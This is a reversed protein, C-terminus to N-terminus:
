NQMETILLSFDAGFYNNGSPDQRPGIEVGGIKMEIKGSYPAPNTIIANIVLILKDVLASYSVPFAAIDGVQVGLFRYNLTYSITMPATTGQMMADYTIAFGTIWGDPQPYLVNALPLWSGSIEDKDKVTVGSVSIKSISDAINALNLSVTM